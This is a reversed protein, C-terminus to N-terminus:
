GCSFTGEVRVGAESTGTFTGHHLDDDITLEAPELHLATDGVLLVFAEAAYTGPGDVPESSEVEVWQLEGESPEASRDIKVVFVRGPVFGEGSCWSAAEPLEEGAHEARAAATVEIAARVSEAGDDLVLEIRLPGLTPESLAAALQSPQTVPAASTSPAPDSSGGGCAALALLAVVPLLPRVSTSPLLM